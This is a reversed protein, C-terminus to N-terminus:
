LVDAASAGDSHGAVSRLFGAISNVAVEDPVAAAQKDGGAADGGGSGADREAGGGEAGADHVASDVFRRLLVEESPQPAAMRWGLKFVRVVGDGDGAAVLRRQRPNFSAAVFGGSAGGRAGAAGAGRGGVLPLATAPLAIPPPPAALASGTASAISGDSRLVVAPRGTSAYLDYVYVHGDGSTAAVVMPRVKSWALGAVASVHTSSSPQLVLLPTASLASYLCVRGDLGASAFLNRHFPSAALALVAGAHPAYSFAVPNPFLVRPDPRADYVVEVSVAKTGADRAHREIARVVKPRESLPIRAVAAAAAAEWPLSTDAGAVGGARIVSRGAAGGAATLQAGRCKYVGGSEAGVFFTAASRGDLAFALSAVGIVVAGAAKRARAGARRRGAGASDEDSDDGGGRDDGGGGDVGAALKAPQVPMAAPQFGQLPYDLGGGSGPVDLPQWLLVKGEASASALVHASSGADWAWEVRVVPERHFYDDSRSRAVLTDGGDAGGVDRNLDWVFVEGGFAGAALVGPREPHWAVSCVCSSTELVASPASGASVVRSGASVVDAPASAGGAVAAANGDPAGGQHEAKGSVGRGHIQHYFDWVVVGARHKCWGTHDQSGFAAALLSGTSNWAVSSCSLGLLRPQSAAAATEDAAKAAGPKRAETEEPQGFAVAMTQICGVDDDVDEGASAVLNATFDSQESLAAEVAESARRLFQLEAESAEWGDFRLAALGHVPAAGGDDTQTEASRRVTPETGADRVGVASTQVAGDASAAAKQRASELVFATADHASDM